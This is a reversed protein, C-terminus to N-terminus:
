NRELGFYDPYDAIFKRFSEPLMLLRLKDLSDQAEQQLGMPICQLVHEKLIKVSNPKALLGDVLLSFNKLRDTTDNAFFRSAAVIGEEFQNNAGALYRYRVAAENKNGRQEAQLAEIYIRQNFPIKAEGNLKKGVFSWEGREAAIMVALQDIEPQLMKDTGGSVRQLQRSAKEIEDLAFLKKSRAIIARTKLREDGIMGVTREFLMSDTM